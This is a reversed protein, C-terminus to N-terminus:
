GHGLGLWVLPVGDGCGGWEGWGVSEVLGPATTEASNPDVKPEHRWLEIARPSGRDIMAEGTDTAGTEKYIYRGDADVGVQHLRCIGAVGLVFLLRPQDKISPLRFDV